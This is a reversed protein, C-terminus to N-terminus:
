HIIRTAGHGGVSRSTTTRREVVNLERPHLCDHVPRKSCRLIGFISLSEVSCTLQFPSHLTTLMVPKLSLILLILVVLFNPIKNLSFVLWCVM